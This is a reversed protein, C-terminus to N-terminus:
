LTEGARLQDRVARALRRAEPDEAVVDAAPRGNIRKVLDRVEHPLEEGTALWYDASALDLYRDTLDDAQAQEAPTRAEEPPLSSYEREVQRIQERVREHEESVPAPLEGPSVAEFKSEVRRLRDELSM